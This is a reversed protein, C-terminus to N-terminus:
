FLPAATTLSFGDAVTEVSLAGIIRRYEREDIPWLRREWLERDFVDHREGGIYMVLRPRDAVRGDDDKSNEVRVLVPLWPAGKRLRVKYHGERIVSVAGDALAGGM